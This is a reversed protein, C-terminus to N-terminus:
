WGAIMLAGCRLPASSVVHCRQQAHVEIAACIEDNNVVVMDDVLENCVRFTEEGVMPCSAGEAFLSMHEKSYRDELSVRRGSHLSQTMADNRVGEVGIVKVWPTM